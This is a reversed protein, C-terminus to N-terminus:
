GECGDWHEYGPDMKGSAEADATLQIGPVLGPIVGLTHNREIEVYCM